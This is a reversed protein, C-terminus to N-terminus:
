PQNWNPIPHWLHKFIWTIDLNPQVPQVFRTDQFNVWVILCRRHHSKFLPMNCCKFSSASWDRISWRESVPRLRFAPLSFRRYVISERSKRDQRRPPGIRERLLQGCARRSKRLPCTCIIDACPPSYPTGWFFVCYPLKTLSTANFDLFPPLPWSILFNQLCWIYM